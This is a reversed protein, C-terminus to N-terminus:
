WVDAWPVAISSMFYENNRRPFRVAYIQHPEPFLSAPSSKECLFQCQQQTIKSSCLNVTWKQFHHVFMQANCTQCFPCIGCSQVQHPIEQGSQIQWRKPFSFFMRSNMKVNHSSKSAVVLPCSLDKHVLTEGVAWSEFGTVFSYKFKRHTHTQRQKSHQCLKLNVLATIIRSRSTANIDYHVSNIM